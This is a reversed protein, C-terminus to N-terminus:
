FDLNTLRLSIQDFNVNLATVNSINKLESTRLIKLDCFSASSAKM